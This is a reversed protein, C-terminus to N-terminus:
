KGLIVPSQWTESGFYYWSKKFIEFKESFKHNKPHMFKKVLRKVNKRGSANQFSTDKSPKTEAV